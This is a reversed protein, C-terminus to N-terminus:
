ASLNPKNTTSATVYKSVNEKLSDFKIIHATFMACINCNQMYYCMFIEKPM